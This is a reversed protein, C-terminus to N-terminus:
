YYIFIMVDRYGNFEFSDEFEMVMQYLCTVLLFFTPVHSQLSGQSLDVGLGSSAGHSDAFHLTTISATDISRNISLFRVRRFVLGQAIARLIRCDNQLPCRM